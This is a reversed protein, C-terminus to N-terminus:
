REGRPRRLGQKLFVARIKAIQRYLTARSIEAKAAAEACTDCEMLLHCLHVLAAPLLGLIRQVDLRTNLSEDYSCGRSSSKTESPAGIESSNGVLHERPQDLSIRCAHYDRCAARRAEIITAIRNNIVLRAFTRHSCQHADFSRSRQLYDLALEQQIDEVDHREFGYKGALSRSKFRTLGLIAPDIQDDVYQEDM